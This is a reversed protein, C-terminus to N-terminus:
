ESFSRLARMTAGLAVASLALAALIEGTSGLTVKTGIADALSSQTLLAIAGGLLGVLAAGLVLGLGTGTRRPVLDERNFLAPLSLLTIAAILLLGHMVGANAFGGGIRALASIPSDAPDAQKMNSAVHLALRAAAVGGLGTGIWSARDTFAHARASDMEIEETIGHSTHTSDPHAEGVDDLDDETQDHTQQEDPDDAHYETQHESEHQEVIEAPDLVHPSLEDSPVSAVDTHGPHEPESPAFVPRDWERDPMDDIGAPEDAPSDSSPASVDLTASGISIDVIDEPGIGGVAVSDAAGSGISGTTDASSASDPVDITSRVRGFRRSVGAARDTELPAIPPPPLATPAATPTALAREITAQLAPDTAGTDVTSVDGTDDWTAGPRVARAAALSPDVGLKRVSDRTVDNFDEAGSELWEDVKQPTPDAAPPISTRRVAPEKWEDDWADESWTDSFSEKPAFMDATRKPVRPSPASNQDWLAVEDPDPPPLEPLTGELPDRDILDDDSRNRRFLGRRRGAGGEDTM